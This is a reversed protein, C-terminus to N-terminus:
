AFLALWHRTNTKHMYARVVGGGKKKGGIGQPERVDESIVGFLLHGPLNKVIKVLM